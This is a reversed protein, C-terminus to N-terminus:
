CERSGRRNRLFDAYRRQVPDPPEEACEPWSCPWVAGRYPDNIPAECEPHRACPGPADEGADLGDPMNPSM